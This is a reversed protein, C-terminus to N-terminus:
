RKSLESAPIGDLKRPKTRWRDQYLSARVRVPLMQRDISPNRPMRVVEQNLCPPQHLPLIPFEPAPAHPGRSSYSCGVDRMHLGVNAPQQPYGSLDLYGARFPM